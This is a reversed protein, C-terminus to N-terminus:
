FSYIYHPHPLIGSPNGNWTYTHATEAWAFAKSKKRYTVPSLGLGEKLVTMGTLQLGGPYTCKGKASPDDHFGPLGLTELIGSVKLHHDFLNHISCSSRLQLCEQEVDLVLGFAAFVDSLLMGPALHLIQNEASNSSLQPPSPIWPTGAIAVTLMPQSGSSCGLSSFKSSGNEPPSAAIGVQPTIRPIVPKFLIIFHTELHLGMCRFSNYLDCVEPIALSSNIALVERSHDFSHPDLSAFQYAICALPGLRRYNFPPLVRRTDFIPAQITAVQIQWSEVPGGIPIGPDSFISCLNSMGQLNAQQELSGTILMHIAALLSSIHISSPSGSGEDRFLLLSSQIHLDDFHAVEMDKPNAPSNGFVAM